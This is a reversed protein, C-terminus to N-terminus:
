VGGGDEGFFTRRSYMKPSCTQVAFKNSCPLSRCGYWRKLPEGSLCLCFTAESVNSGTNFLLSTEVFDFSAALTYMETCKPLAVGYVTHM